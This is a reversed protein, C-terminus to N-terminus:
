RFPRCARLLSEDANELPVRSGTTRKRYCSARQKAYAQNIIWGHSGILM